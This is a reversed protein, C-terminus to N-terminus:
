PTRREARRGAVGFPQRCLRNRFIRAMRSRPAEIRVAAEESHAIRDLLGNEIDRGEQAALSVSGERWDFHAPEVRLHVLVASAVAGNRNPVIMLAANRLAPPRRGIGILIGNNPSNLVGLTDKIYKLRLLTAGHSRYISHRLSFM